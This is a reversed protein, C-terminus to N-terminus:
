RKQHLTGYRNSQYDQAGQLGIDFGDVFGYISNQQHPEILATKIWQEFLARAKEADGGCALLLLDVAHGGSELGAHYQEGEEETKDPNYGEQYPKATEMKKGRQM